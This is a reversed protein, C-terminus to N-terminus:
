MSYIHPTSEWEEILEQIDSIFFGVGCNASEGDSDCLLGAAKEVRQKFESAEM